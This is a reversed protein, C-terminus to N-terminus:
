EFLTINGSSSTLDMQYSGDGLTMFLRDYDNQISTASGEFTIRGSSTTGNVRLSLGSLPGVEIDGSSTTIKVEGFPEAPGLKVDGSSSTIFTKGTVLPISIEGSSTVIRSDQARLERIEISGSSSEVKLSDVKLAEAKLGASSSTFELNEDYSEPLHIELLLNSQSVTFSGTEPTISIRINDGLDQVSLSVQRNSKYSGKLYIKLDNENTKILETDAFTSYISISEIEDTLDVSKSEDAQYSTLNSFVNFRQFFDIDKLGVITKEGNEIVEIGNWSITVSKGDEFVQIGDSDIKVSDGDGTIELSGKGSIDEMRFNDIYLLSYLGIGFAILMIGALAISLKKLDM